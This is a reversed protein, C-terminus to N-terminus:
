LLVIYVNNLRSKWNITIANKKREFFYVIDFNLFLIGEIEKRTVLPRGNSLDEIPIPM